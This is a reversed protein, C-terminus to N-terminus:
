ARSLRKKRGFIRRLVAILLFVVVIAVLVPLFLSSIALVVALINEFTSVVPNGLGGTMATSGGRVIAGGSKLLGATGGGAIIATSWTMLPGMDQVVSATAITGAVTAAPVAMTDLLNDLWPIYYAGIELISAIGFCILAESSAMWAFNAGLDVYGGHQALGVFLLPLFIRFGCAASLGIGLCISIFTGM